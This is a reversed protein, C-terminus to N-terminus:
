PAPRDVGAAGLGLLRYEHGTSAPDKDALIEITVRHPGPPLDRALEDTSRFGGWTGSFWGDRVTAPRQDVQLKAKGMPGRIHWDMVLVIRGPIEFQIRSGPKDSKWSKLGGSTDLTWGDNAIPKLADAEFLATHEYLDSFLPPPVNGVPPLRDDPPMKKLTEELTQAVLNATFAHGRDNPHVMDAIYDQWKVRGAEMQPWLADRMSVLPLGYHRGVQSHWQQANRGGEAMMFLMLVAPQNSQKLIQRVLGEVSEAYLQINPDNVSYEVIVFDPKQQLLDRQARMAGYNSNTAGIGANVLRVNAKPFTQRWWQTVLSAYNKEAASAMAGGTISGGIAGITVPEGRRAKAFVHFLRDTAAQYTAQAFAAEPAMGLAVGVVLAALTTRSLISRKM